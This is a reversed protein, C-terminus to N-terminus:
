DHKSSGSMKQTMVTESIECIYTKNDQYPRVLDLEFKTANHCICVMCLISKTAKESLGSMELNPLSKLKKKFYKHSNEYKALCYVRNLKISGQWKEQGQDFALIM